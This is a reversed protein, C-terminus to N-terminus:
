RGALLELYAILDEIQEPALVFEPMRIGQTHGVAIGEAFAEALNAPPWRTALVPFAPAAPHPGPGERAIAHCGACLRGALEAGAEADGPPLGEAAALSALAAVAFAAALFRLTM